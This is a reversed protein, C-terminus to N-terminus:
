SNQKPQGSAVRLADALRGVEPNPVIGYVAQLLAILKNADAKEMTPEVGKPNPTYESGFYECVGKALAAACKKRYEETVLLKAEVINDMFGGEVLAGPMAGNVGKLVGLWSGDKMGRDSLGTAKVLSKQLLTGLRLSEGSGWTLTEIGRPDKGDVGNGDYDGDLANAHISIFADAHANKAAATRDALPTDASTPSVEVVRFGCRILEVKLLEVVRRNFEWEHMFSEGTVPSKYGPMTPTRKGPTNLGHGNDLAILKGM